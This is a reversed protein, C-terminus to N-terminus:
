FLCLLPVGHTYNGQKSVESGNGVGPEWRKGGRSHKLHYVLADCHRAAQHIHSGAKLELRRLHTMLDTFNKSVPMYYSSLVM